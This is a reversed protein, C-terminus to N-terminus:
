DPVRYYVCPGQDFCSQESPRKAATHLLAQGSHLCAHLTSDNLDARRTQTKVTRASASMSLAFLSEFHSSNSKPFTRYQCNMYMCEYHVKPAISPGTSVCSVIIFVFGDDM